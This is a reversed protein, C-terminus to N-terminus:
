LNPEKPAAERFEIPELCGSTSVYQTPASKREAEAALFARLIPALLFESDKALLAAAEPTLGSPNHQRVYEEAARRLSEPNLDTM